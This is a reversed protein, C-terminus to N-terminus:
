IPQLLPHFHSNNVLIKVHYSFSKNLYRSLKIVFYKVESKILRIM